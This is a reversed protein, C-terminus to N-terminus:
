GFTAVDFEAEVAYREANSIGCSSLALLVIIYWSEILMDYIMHSISGLLFYYNIFCFMEYLDATGWISCM